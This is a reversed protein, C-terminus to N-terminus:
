TKEGIEKEEQPKKEIRLFFALSLIPSATYVICTFIYPTTYDGASMIIGALLASFAWLMNWSTMNIGAVKARVDKEVTEMTFMSFIPYAMNMLAGRFLYCSISLSFNFSLGIGILFPISSLQTLAVMKIKGIRRALLPATINAAAITSQGGVFIMGIVPRSASFRRYFFVNFLPVVFGAGLGILGNVLAFKLYLMINRSRTVSGMMDEKVVSEEETKGPTILFLTIVSLYQFVISIVLTARYAIISEPVTGFIPALLVPLLSGFIFGVVTFITLIAFNFSFLHSREEERSNETMFPSEAVMYLSFAGGAIGNSLLIMLDTETVYLITYAISSIILGSVLSAKRGIKDCLVGAPIAAIGLSFAGSFLILGIFAESYGLIIVYLNFILQSVGYSFAILASTILFLKANTSFETFRKFYKEM